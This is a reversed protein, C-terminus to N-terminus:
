LSHGNVHMIAFTWVVFALSLHIFAYLAQDLREMGKAQWLLQGHLLINLPFLMFLPYFGIPSADGLLARSLLAWVVMLVTILPPAALRYQQPYPFM